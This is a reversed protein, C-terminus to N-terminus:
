DSILAADDDEELKDERDDEVFADATVFEPTVVLEGDPEDVSKGHITEGKPGADSIQAKPTISYVINTPFNGKIM